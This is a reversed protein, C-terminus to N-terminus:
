SRTGGADTDTGADDDEDVDEEDDSASADDADASGEAPRVRYPGDPLAHELSREAFAEEDEWTTGAEGPPVVRDVAIDAAERPASGTASAQEGTGTSDADALDPLGMRDSGTDSVDSPGLAGNDHGLGTVPAEDGDPILTSSAM